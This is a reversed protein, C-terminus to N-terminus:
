REPLADGAHRRVLELLPAVRAQLVAIVLQDGERVVAGFEVDGGDVADLDEPVFVMVTTEHDVVAVVRTWGHAAMTATAERLYGARGGATDGDDVQYVGVQVSRAARLAATADRDDALQILVERGLGCLVSGLRLEVVPHWHGNAVFHERVADRLDTAEPGLRVARFAAVALTMVGLIMAALIVLGVICGLGM